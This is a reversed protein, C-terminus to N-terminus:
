LSFRSRIKLNNGRLGLTAYYVAIYMTGAIVFLYILSSYSNFSHAQLMQGITNSRQGAGEEVEQQINVKLM